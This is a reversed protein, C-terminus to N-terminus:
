ILYRSGNDPVFRVLRPPRAIDTSRPLGSTLPVPDFHLSQGMHSIPRGVGIVRESGSLCGSPGNSAKSMDIPKAQAGFLKEPEKIQILAVATRSWIKRTGPPLEGLLDGIIFITTTPAVASKRVADGIAWACVGEGAVGSRNFAASRFVSVSMRISRVFAANCSVGSWSFYQGATSLAIRALVSSRFARRAFIESVTPIRASWFETSTMRLRSGM